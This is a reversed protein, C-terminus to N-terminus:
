EKRRVKSVVKYAELEVATGQVLVFSDLTLDDYQQLTREIFEMAAQEVEFSHFGSCRNHPDDVRVFYRSYGLETMTM